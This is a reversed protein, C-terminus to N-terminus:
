EYVQTLANDIITLIETRDGSMGGKTAIQQLETENLFTKVRDMAKKKTSIIQSLEGRKIEFADEVAEIINQAEPKTTTTIRDTVKGETTVEAGGGDDNGTDVIGKYGGDTEEGGEGGQGQGDGDEEGKGKESPKGSGKEVKKEAEDYSEDGSPQGKGEKAEKNFQELIEELTAQKSGTGADQGGQGGETGGEEGGEGSEGGEGGKGKDKGQGKGKNQGEGEGDGEGQDGKDGKQGKDGEGEQEGGSKDGEDQSEGGGQQGDQNEGKQDQQQQEQSLKEFYSVAEITEAQTPSFVKVSEDEGDGAVMKGVQIFSEDDIKRYKLYVTVGSKPFYNSWNRMFGEREVKFIKDHMM